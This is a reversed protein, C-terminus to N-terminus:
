RIRACGEHSRNMEVVLEQSFSISSQLWLTQLGLTLRLTNPTETTSTNQWVIICTPTFLRLNFKRVSKRQSTLRVRLDLRLHVCTTLSIMKISSRASYNLVQLLCSKRQSTNTPSITFFKRQSAHLNSRSLSFAFFTCALRPWVSM